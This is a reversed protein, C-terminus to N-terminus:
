SNESLVFIFGTPFAKGKKRKYKIGAGMDCLAQPLPTFQGQLALELCASSKRANEMLEKLPNACDRFEPDLTLGPRSCLRACLFVKLQCLCGTLPLLSLIKSIKVPVSHLQESIVPHPIRCCRLGPFEPACASHPLEWHQFPLGPFLFAEGTSNGAQFLHCTFVDRCQSICDPLIPRERVNWLEESIRSLVACWSLVLKVLVIIKTANEFTYTSSDSCVFSVPTTPINFCSFGSILTAKEPAAVQLKLRQFACLAGELSCSFALTPNSESIGAKKFVKQM